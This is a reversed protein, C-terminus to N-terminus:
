QNDGEPVYTRILKHSTDDTVYGDSILYHLAERITRAKGTVKVELQTQTLGDPHAALVTSIRGMVVTPRWDGTGDDDGFDKPPEVTVVGEVQGAFTLDVVLDAFWFMPRGSVAHKRLQGPRDKAIRLYSRGKLGAGIPHRNELVYAAGDIGNIKHVGGIAYRGRTEKDKTVHDLCVVAIGRATILRPLIRFWRAIDDNDNKLGQTSLAETVGDIVVLTPNLALTEELDDVPAGAKLPDMPQHYHFYEQIENHGLQLLLLRGVIADESDEFDLYGVHHGRRIECACVALALWTKGAETESSLWHIKGPYFLGVGDIRQGVSPKPPQWEGSLIPGLDKAKWSSETM